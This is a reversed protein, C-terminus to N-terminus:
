VWSERDTNHTKHTYTFSVNQAKDLAQMRDGDREREKEREVDEANWSFECSFSLLFDVCSHTQGRRGQQGLTSRRGRQADQGSRSRRITLAIGLPVLSTPIAASTTTTTTTATPRKIGTTRILLQRLAAPVPYATTQASIHWLCSYTSPFGAMCMDVRKMHVGGERQNSASTVSYQCDGEQLGEM